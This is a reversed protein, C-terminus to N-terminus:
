RWADRKKNTRPLSAMRTTSSCMLHCWTMMTDSLGSADQPPRYASAAPRYTRAASSSSWQQSAPLSILNTPNKRISRSNKTNTRRGQKRKKFSIHFSIAGGGGYPNRAYTSKTEQEYTGIRPDLCPDAHNIINNLFHSSSIHIKKPFIQYM